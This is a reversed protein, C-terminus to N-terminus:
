KGKKKETNTGSKAKSPPPPRPPPVKKALCFSSIVLQIQNTRTINLAHTLTHIYNFKINSSEASLSSSYLRTSQHFVHLDVLWTVLSHFFSLWLCFFLFFSLLSAPFPQITPSQSASKKNKKEKMKELNLRHLFKGSSSGNTQASTGFAANFNPEFRGNSVAAASTPQAAINASHVPTQGAIVEGFPNLGAAFAHNTLLHTQAPQSPFIPQSRGFSAHLSASASSASTSSTLPCTSVTDSFSSFPNSSVHPGAAASSAISQNATFVSAADFAPVNTQGSLSHLARGNDALVLLDDSPKGSGTARISPLCFNNSVNLPDNNKSQPPPAGAFLELIDDKATGSSASTTSSASSIPGTSPEDSLFPNFPKEKAYKEQNRFPIPCVHNLNITLSQFLLVFFYHKDRQIHTHTHFIFFFIFFILFHLSSVFVFFVFFLTSVMNFTNTDNSPLISSTVPCALLNNNALDMTLNLQQEDQIM